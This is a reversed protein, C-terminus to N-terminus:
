LSGARFGLSSGGSRRGPADTGPPPPDPGGLSICQPTWLTFSGWYFHVHESNIMFVLLIVNRNQYIKMSLFEQFSCQLAPVIKIQTRLSSM